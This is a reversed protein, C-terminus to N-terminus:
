KQKKKKEPAGVSSPRDVDKTLVIMNVTPRVSVSPPDEDDKSEKPDRKKEKTKPPTLHLKVEQGPLADELKAPYGPKTKDKGRLEEKEKDSFVKINGTDDFETPLFLKRVVVEDQYELSYDKTTTVTIFPQNNPNNDYPNPTGKPYATYLWNMFQSQQQQYKAMDLQYKLMAKQRENPTRASLAVQQQKMLDQALTFQDYQFKAIKYEPTQV